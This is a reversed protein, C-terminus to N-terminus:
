RRNQRRSDHSILTWYVLALDNTLNKSGERSTCEGIGLDRHSLRVRSQNCNLPGLGVASRMKTKRSKVLNAFREATAVFLTNVKRQTIPVLNRSFSLKRLTLDPTPFPRDTSTRLRAETVSEGPTTVKHDSSHPYKAAPTIAM